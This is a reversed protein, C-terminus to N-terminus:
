CKFNQTLQLDILEIADLPDNFINATNGEKSEIGWYPRDIKTHPPRKNHKSDWMFLGVNRLQRLFSDYLPYLVPKFVNVYREEANWQKDTLMVIAINLTYKIVGESNEEPTDLRLAVLPYKQYKYVKDLSKATLRDAIETRHGYMYYPMGAAYGKTSLDAIGTTLAAILIADSQMATVVAGIDDVIYNM